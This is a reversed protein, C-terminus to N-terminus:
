TTVKRVDCLSVYGALANQKGPVDDLRVSISDNIEEVSTVTGLSGVDALWTNRGRNSVVEVLDGVKIDDAVPETKVAAVAAVAAVAKGAETDHTAEPPDCPECYESSWDVRRGSHDIITYTYGRPNTRVGLVEVIFGHPADDYCNGTRRVWEGVNVPHKPTQSNLRELETQLTERAAQNKAAWSTLRELQTKLDAVEARLADRETHLRDITEADAKTRAGFAARHETLKREHEATLQSAANQASEASYKWAQGWKRLKTITCALNIITMHKPM